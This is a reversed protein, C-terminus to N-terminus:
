GRGVCTYEFGPSRMPGPEYVNRLDIFVRGRMRRKVEEM